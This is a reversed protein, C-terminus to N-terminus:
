LNPLLVSVITVPLLLQLRNQLNIPYTTLLHLPGSDGEVTMILSNSFSWLAEFSFFFQLIIYHIVM